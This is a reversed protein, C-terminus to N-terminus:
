PLDDEKAEVSHAVHLGADQLKARLTRRTIGLLLAARQQNGGTYELVCPILVRDLQLHTERYLDRCDPGLRQRLFAKPDLSGGPASIPAVPEGPAQPFEPLFDRLLIPGHARLIAQKLVSQLERGNGAGALVAPPFCSPVLVPGTAQLIAQKLMSQLERVNGPWPYRQLLELAEPTVRDVEKGLERSFRRIFHQVLLPLDGARERLPALRITYVNLRYYLDQRFRGDEILKGLQRNTAAIIRVDAKITENGGVREFQGDQLVRLIKTQTLPTMDGIEDLFVTGGNCQEFKGVRKRDAGTFSGKEHGFLESELLTEPIAACNIALFPQRSRNSYHYIARAVLEKGTGSEGLILATVNQPAVRGIDKYAEQMESCTGVLIDDTDNAPEPDAVKAPVQMLRSMEFAGQILQRLPEPDLPKIVYDYAGLRMAEIATETSGHGTMLIVPVKANLDHLRRFVELGSQDPLRIDVIVADPGKQIFLNLGEAATQATAVTAETKDFLVRFCDLTFPDDDIVLLLAM